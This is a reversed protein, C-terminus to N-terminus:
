AAPRVPQDLLRVIHAADGLAQAARWLTQYSPIRKPTGAHGSAVLEANMAMVSQAMGAYADSLNTVAPDTHYRIAAKHVAKRLVRELAGKCGPAHRPVFIADLGSLSGPAFKLAHRVWKRVTRAGPIAGHIAEVAPTWARKLVDGVARDTLKCGSGLVLSIAFIRKKSKALGAANSVVSNTKTIDSM